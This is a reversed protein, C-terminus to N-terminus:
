KQVVYMLSRATSARVAPAMATQLTVVRYLDIVYARGCCYRPLSSFLCLLSWFGTLEQTYVATHRLPLWSLGGVHRALCLLFFVIFTHWM